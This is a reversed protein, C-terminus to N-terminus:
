EVAQVHGGRWELSRKESAAEYVPKIEAEWRVMLASSSSVAVQLQKAVKLHTPEPLEFELGWVQIALELGVLNDEWGQHANEFIISSLTYRYM